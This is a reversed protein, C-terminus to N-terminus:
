KQSDNAGKITLVVRCSRKASKWQWYHRIPRKEWLCYQSHPSLKMHNNCSHSHFQVPFIYDDGSCRRHLGVVIKEPKSVGSRDKEEEMQSEKLYWMWVLGVFFHCYTRCPRVDERRASHMQAWTRWRSRPTCGKTGAVQQIHNVLEMFSVQHINKEKATHIRGSTRSGRSSQSLWRLLPMLTLSWWMSRVQTSGGGCSSSEGGSVRNWTEPHHYLEETAVDSKGHVREDCLYSVRAHILGGGTLWTRREWFNLQPPEWQLHTRLDLSGHKPLPRLRRQSSPVLFHPHPPLLLM